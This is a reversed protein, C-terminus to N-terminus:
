ARSARHPARGLRPKAEKSAAHLLLIGLTAFLCWTGFGLGVPLSAGPLAAIWRMVSLYPGVLVGEAFFGLPLSVPLAALTVLLVGGWLLLGTWPVLLLNALVGYLSVYGFVTGIIPVAGAQACLTVALIDAPRRAWGPLRRRLESGTWGPLLVLIGATALFSLQFGADLASWPWAVLVVIAAMALGQLPDLWKRLLWGREWLLWFLGLIAFMIGARILSVRAGGVFVYFGIAPVLLLYRWAPRLRVLGLLWWGGAALIGVHLGSLALIHAVGAIRFAEQEDDPLRGRAGLLLAAFLNAERPALAGDLHRLLDQRVHSAWRVLGPKGTALIEVEDAWFLGHIGRRALSRRWAEPQPLGWRGVLRVRDGPGVRPDSPVYALLNVVLTDLSLTFSTNRARPEPIDLVRGTVECLNPLQFDYHAPLTEQCPLGLGLAFAAAWLAVVSRRGAGVLLAAGAAALALSGPTLLYGFAIGFGLAAGLGPLLAREM